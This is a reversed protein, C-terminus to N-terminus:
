KIFSRKLFATSYPVCWKTPVDFFYSLVTEMYIKSIALRMVACIFGCVELRMTGMEMNPERFVKLSAQSLM